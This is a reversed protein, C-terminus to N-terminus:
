KSKPAWEAAKGEQASRAMSATQEPRRMGWIADYLPKMWPPVFKSMSSRPTEGVFIQDQPELRLNSANNHEVLIEHLRVRFIEPHAGEAIHSRVVYVEDPAAGVALSGT